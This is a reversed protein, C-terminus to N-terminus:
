TVTTGIAISTLIQPAATVDLEQTASFSVGGVALAVTVTDTGAAVTVESATLGNAAATLTGVATNSDTWTPPSDPIPTTLMPNGSQDLFAISFSATHGVSLSVPATTM